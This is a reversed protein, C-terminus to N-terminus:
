MKMWYHISIMVIPSGNIFRKQRLAQRKMKKLRERGGDIGREATAVSSGASGPCIVKLDAMALKIGFPDIGVAAARRKGM